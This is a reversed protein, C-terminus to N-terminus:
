ILQLGSKLVHRHPTSTNRSLSLAVESGSQSPRSEFGPHDKILNTQRYAPFVRLVSSKAGRICGCVHLCVIRHLHCKSPNDTLSAHRALFARRRKVSALLCQKAKLRFASDVGSSSTEAAHVFMAMYELPLKLDLLGNHLVALFQSRVM